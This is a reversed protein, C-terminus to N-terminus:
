RSAGVRSPSADRASAGQRPVERLVLLPFSRARHVRGPRGAGTQRGPLRAVRARFRGARRPSASTTSTAWWMRARREARRLGLAPLLAHSERSLRSQVGRAGAPRVPLLAVRQLVRAWRSRCRRQRRCAGSGPKRRAASKRAHSRPRGRGHGADADCSRLSGGPKGAARGALGDRRGRRPESGDSGHQDHVSSGARRLGDGRADGPSLLGKRAVRRANGRPRRGPQVDRGQVRRSARLLLRYIRPLTSGNSVFGFTYGAEDVRRVIESFLAHMTPEGGTFSLHDIGCDKGERLVKEFLELSLEGTAAHREGYCHACRLNCRNTLEVVLRSVSKRRRRRRSPELPPERGGPPRNRRLARLRRSAAPSREPHCPAAGDDSPRLAALQEPRDAPRAGRRSGPPDPPQTAPGFRQPFLSGSAHLRRRAPGPLGNRPRAATSSGREFGAERGRAADGRLRRARNQRRLFAEAARAGRRRGAPRSPPGRRRLSLALRPPRSRDLADVQRQRVRRRPAM